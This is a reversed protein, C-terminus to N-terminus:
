QCEITAEEPLNEPLKFELSFDINLIRFRTNPSVVEMNSTPLKIAPRLVAWCCGIGTSAGAGNANGLAHPSKCVTGGVAIPKANTNWDRVSPVIRIACPVPAPM